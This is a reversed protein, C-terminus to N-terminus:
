RFRNPFRKRLWKEANRRANNAAGTWTNDWSWGDFSRVAKLEHAELTIKVITRVNDREHAYIRDVVTITVDASEADPAIELIESELDKRMDRASDQLDTNQPQDRDAEIWVKLKEAALAPAAFAVLLLITPISRKATTSMM